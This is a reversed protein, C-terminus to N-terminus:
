SDPAQVMEAYPSAHLYVLFGKAPKPNLNLLQRMYLQVQERHNADPEGTKYDIVVWYNELEVVRDPRISKGDPLLLSKENRVHLNEKFYNNILPLQIVAKIKETLGALEDTAILGANLMRQMAPEIEKESRINSLATHLLNGWQIATNKEQWAKKSLASISLHKQWSGPTYDLMLSKEPKDSAPQSVKMFNPDGWAIKRNEIAKPNIRLLYNELYEEWGKALSGKIGSRGTIIYLATEPRTTAVYMLNIRDLANKQSEELLLDNFSTKELAKVLPLRMAPLQEPMDPHQDIWRVTTKEKEGHAFPFIVVPFQLGKSKHITLIRVANANEPLKLCQKERNEAWWDLFVHSDTASKGSRAWIAELFFLVYPNKNLPINLQRLVNTCAEYLSASEYRFSSLSFGNEELLTSLSSESLPAIKATLEELTRFPLKGNHIMWSCIHYLNIDTNRNAMVHLCALLLAVEPSADVLLSEGSIVPINQEVLATALVAGHRNNRVLIAIDRFTFNRNGTLDNVIDLTRQTHEPNREAAKLGQPIWEIQVYGKQPNPNSEQQLGKYVDQFPAPLYNEAVFQYFHNNFEIITETSRFNRNLDKSEFLQQLLLHRELILKQDTEPFPQPLKAFLGVEGGRFRYIAQKGDGVILSGAQQALGNQILPLLNQWQTVSTDQFEDIMFHQYKEGLREYIFPVPEEGVIKAVRKNFESIHVIGEEFRIRDIIQSIENLLAMRFLEDCLISKIEYEPGQQEIIKIAKEAIQGLQGSIKDIAASIPTNEKAKSYWINDSVTNLVTDSPYPLGNESTQTLKRFWNAIGSKGKYLDSSDILGKVLCELAQNGLTELEEEIKKCERKFQERINLFDTIALKKLKGIADSYQESLLDKAASGLETDIAVKKEEDTRQLAYAVLADTIAPHSGVKQLLEDVALQIIVENSLEVSFNVPMHLEQAFSRVVRHMFSDITGVSFDNYNHLIVSLLNAARKQLTPANINLDNELLQAMTKASGNSPGEPLAMQHLTSIVREKMETAAKNTFTIALIKRFRTPDTDSLAIRLYEKVLTFTKGSGASAKYVLFKM